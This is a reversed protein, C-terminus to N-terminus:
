YWIRFLGSGGKGGTTNSQFITTGGGGGGGGGYWAADEGGAYDGGGYGGVNGVDCKLPTGCAGGTGGINNGSGRSGAYVSVTSSVSDNGGAWIEKAASNEGFKKAAGGAGGAASWVVKFCSPLSSSINVIGAIGGNGSDARRGSWGRGATLYVTGNYAITTDEGDGGNGNGSGASGGGGVVVTLTDGVNMANADALVGITAGGGGGGGAAGTAGGGGGAGGGIIEFLCVAPFIAAGGTTFYNYSHGARGSSSEVRITVTTSGVHSDKLEAAQGVHPRTGELAATSKEGNKTLKGGFADVAGWVAADAFRIIDEMYVNDAVDKYYHFIIQPESYSSPTLAYVCNATGYGSASAVTPKIQTGGSFEDAVVLYGNYSSSSITYLDKSNYKLTGM